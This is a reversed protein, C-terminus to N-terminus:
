AGDGGRTLSREAWQTLAACAEATQRTNEAVQRALADARAADATAKLSAAEVQRRLANLRGLLLFPLTLWAGALVLLGCALVIGLVTAPYPNDTM